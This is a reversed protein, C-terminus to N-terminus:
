VFRRGMVRMNANGRETQTDRKGDGIFRLYKADELLARRENAYPMGALGYLAAKTGSVLAMRWRSLLADPYTDNSERPAFTVSAVIPLLAENPAPTLRVTDTITDVAYAWPTEDVTVARARLIDADNDHDLDYDEQDEVSDIAALDEQWLGTRRFFDVAAERLHIKMIPQPCGGVFPVISSILTYLNGDRGGFISGQIYHDEAGDTFKVYFEYELRSAPDTFTYSYLGTSPNTLAVGAAVVVALTDRRRVGYLGDPDSFVAADANALVGGIKFRRRITTTSM